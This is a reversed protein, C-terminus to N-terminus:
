LKKLKEPLEPKKERLSAGQQEEKIRISSWIVKNFTM